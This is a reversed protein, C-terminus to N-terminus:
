AKVERRERYQYGMRREKRGEVEVVREGVEEKGWGWMLVRGM